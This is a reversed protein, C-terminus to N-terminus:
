VIYFDENDPCKLAFGAQMIALIGSLSPFFLYEQAKPSSYDSVQMPYCDLGQKKLKAIAWRNKSHEKVIVGPILTEKIAKQLSTPFDTPRTSGGQTRKIHCNKFAYLKALCTNKFQELNEVTLSFTLEYPIEARAILEIKNGDIEFELYRLLHILDLNTEGVEDLLLYKPDYVTVNEFLSDRFRFLPSYSTKLIQTYELLQEAIEQDEQIPKEVSEISAQGAKIAEYDEPYNVGLFSMVCNKGGKIYKWDKQIKKVPYSSINVAGEIVKIRKRYYDWDKKGGLVNQLTQYLQVVFKEQPLGALVNELELLPKAIELFAESKWYVELFPRQMCNLSELMTTLEKRGKSTNLKDIGQEWAKEPIYAIANSPIDTQVKGLVRGVRGIRQWFSFRDKSSFILWDLNQRSPEPVKKFNFGVDVTSTALIVQKQAAIQRQDTPTNGIIRGIKNELGKARLQDSIRNLTDKSDLIVAGNRDPYQQLKQTVEKVIESVLQEKSEPKQRIELNVQTQSPILNQRHEKGDIRAIKVGSQALTDLAVDCAPEPTATLLAIKRNHNFYGFVQSLAMYFFLSVLQKADYLHFEDFIVTSFSSYFESAINSKDLRNYAFFTAYYFIDPNTVLLIPQDKCEPFITSPERLVNYLKEGSRNGVRVNSWKNVDKASAAKVIHPLSAKYIFEEAALTQQEILANTPAIYVANRNSNYKLVSLGADTKGTGTPALDLIIDKTKAAEYVDVQHQLAKEMFKKLEPPINVCSAISASELTIKITNNM